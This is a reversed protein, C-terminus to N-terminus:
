PRLAEMPLVRGALRAPIWAGLAATGIAGAVAAACLWPEVAIEIAPVLTPLVRALALLLLLGAAGGAVAAALAQQMVVGLRVAEGGGLAALLAYDARKELVAAYTMLAVVAGGVVLGLIAIAWLIPLFGSAIERRNNHIFTARDYVAIQPSVSRITDAIAERRAPDTRVLFFSAKDEVGLLAELDLATIFAYQTVLLNTDRSIGAVTFECDALVLTDAVALHARRAFARDIVIEGARPLARGAIIRHPLASRADPALGIVLLTVPDGDVEAPLLASLIPEASRVGRIKEAEARASAPLVGSGRLLNWSGRRGVWLDAEADEVYSMSGRVGGRYIGALFASLIVACAVGLGTLIFRTRERFAYRFGLLIM